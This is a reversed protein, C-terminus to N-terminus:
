RVDVSRGGPNWDRRQTGCYPCMRWERLVSHGCSDCLEYFEADDRKERAERALLLWTVAIIIFLAVLPLAWGLMSGPGGVIQHGSDLLTVFLLGGVLLSALVGVLRVLQKRYKEGTM